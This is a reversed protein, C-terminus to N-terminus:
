LRDILHTLYENLELDLVNTSIVNSKHFDKM